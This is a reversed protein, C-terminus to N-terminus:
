LDRTNRHRTGDSDTSYTIRQWRQRSPMYTIQCNCHKHIKFFDDPQEGYVFRGAVSACWDCCGGVGQKREIYSVLGADTHLSANARLTDMVAAMSINEVVPEDILWMTDVTLLVDDAIEEGAKLKEILNSIRSKDIKGEVANINIKVSDNIVEQVKSTYYSSNRYCQNLAKEIDRAIDDITLGSIDADVGFYKKLLKSWEDAVIKSYEQADAYTAKGANVKEWLKSYDPNNSKQWKMFESLMKQYLTREDM